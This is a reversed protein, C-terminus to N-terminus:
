GGYSNHISRQSCTAPTRSTSFPQAVGGDELVGVIAHESWAHRWKEAEDLSGYILICVALLAGASLSERSAFLGHAEWPLYLAIMAEAKGKSLRLPLAVLIWASMRHDALDGCNESRSM